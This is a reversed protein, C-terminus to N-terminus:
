LSAFESDVAHGLQAAHEANKVDPLPHLTRRAGPEAHRAKATDLALFGEIETGVPCHSVVCHLGMAHKEDIHQQIATSLNM